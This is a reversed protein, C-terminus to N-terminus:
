IGIHSQDSVADVDRQERPNRAFLGKVAREPAVVVVQALDHRESRLVLDAVGEVHERKALDVFIDVQQSLSCDVASSHHLKSRRCRSGASASRWKFPFQDYPLSACPGTSM